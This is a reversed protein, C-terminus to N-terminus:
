EWFSNSIWAISSDGLVKILLYTGLKVNINHFICIKPFFLLEFHSGSAMKFIKTRAIATFGPLYVGMLSKYMFTQALNLSQLVM